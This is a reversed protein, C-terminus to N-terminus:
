QREPRRRRATAMPQRHRARPRTVAARRWLRGAGRQRAILEIEELAPDPRDEGVVAVAAVAPSAARGAAPELEVPLAAPLAAAVRARREHGAVRVLARQDPRNAVGIGIRCIGGPSLEGVRLHVIEDGHTRMPAGSGRSWGDPCARRRRSPRAVALVM